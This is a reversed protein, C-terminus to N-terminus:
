AAKKNTLCSNMDNKKHLGSEPSSPAIMLAFQSRDDAAVSVVARLALKM